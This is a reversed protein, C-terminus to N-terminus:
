HQMVVMSDVRAQEAITLCERHESGNGDISLQFLEPLRTWFPTMLILVGTFERMKYFILPILQNFPLPFEYMFKKFKWRQVLANIGSSEQGKRRYLFVSSPSGVRM